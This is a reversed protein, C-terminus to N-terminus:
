ACTVSQRFRMGPAVRVCAVDRARTSAGQQPFISEIAEM